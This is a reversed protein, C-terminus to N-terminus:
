NVMALRQGWALIEMMWAVGLHVVVGGWISKSRLAVIGLIYGGFISGIAEGLPKGFHISCYMAVMPLVAKSGLWRVMGIVLFGRFMWEVVVFTFGYSIEFIGIKWFNTFASEPSSPRYFPYTELFAPLFSVALLLPFVILMMWFYPRIDLNGGRLGYCGAKDREMWWWYLLVPVVTLPLRKLSWFIKNGWKFHNVPFIDKALHTHWPFWATFAIVILALAVAIWFKPDRFVDRVQGSAAQLALVFLYPLSFIALFRLLQGFHPVPPYLWLKALGLSYNLVLAVVLFLATGGYTVWHFDEKWFEQIQRAIKLM